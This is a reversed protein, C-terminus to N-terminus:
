RGVSTLLDPNERRRWVIGDLLYHTLQPVALLPVLVARAGDLQIGAGFLWARDHWLTHDWCLEEVFAAIWLPALFAVPSRPVVPAPRSRGYLYVLAFYPVGHILVNTVTFAFDSNLAVIGVYWCAATTVVVIDKGPNPRRLAFTRWAARGAYAALAVLYVPFAVTEAIAAVPAFDGPVFWAFGRPLHAHWHILPYITAAYAAGLDIVRGLGGEEGARGRYLAVWGVQQRVFHFVAVYALVRWFILDGAAYLAVGAAFAVLPVATYVVGRRRREAPDLYVRYLTSWVHAVDVLLVAAIWGWEPTDEGIGMSAGIALLGFAAVAPGLFVALDIRASFLWPTVRGSV